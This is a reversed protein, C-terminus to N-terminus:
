NSFIFHSLVFFLFRNLGAAGRLSSLTSWRLATPTLRRRGPHFDEGCTMGFKNRCGMTL